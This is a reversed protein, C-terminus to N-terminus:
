RLKFTKINPHEKAHTTVYRDIIYRTEILPRRYVILIGVKNLSLALTYIKSLNVYHHQIIRAAISVNININKGICQTSDLVSLLYFLIRHM